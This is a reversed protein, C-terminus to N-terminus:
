ESRRRYISPRVLELAGSLGSLSESRGIFLLGGPRLLRHAETVFERRLAADFYILVNRCFIADMPGRMPFPPRSLNLREFVVLDRLRDGVTYRRGDGAGSSSFHLSRREESVDKEIRLGYSGARALDLVHTSIDTALIRVDDVSRGTEALRIALSFPEEGSSCGASWYRHRHTGAEVSRDFDEAVLDFHEEDRFFSTVNTSIVDLLNVIEDGSEDELVYQLYEHAADIGLSRMRRGVRATVLPLKNEGLSIGSRQRVIERFAHFTAGDM